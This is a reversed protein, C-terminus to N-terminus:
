ATTHETEAAKEGRIKMSGFESRITGFLSNGQLKLESLCVLQNFLTRLKHHLYLMHGERKGAVRNEFGLLSLSGSVASDTEEVTLTGRREGLPSEVVIDYNYRQKM